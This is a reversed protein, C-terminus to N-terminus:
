GFGSDRERQQLDLRCRDAILLRIIVEEKDAPPSNSERQGMASCRGQALHESTGM